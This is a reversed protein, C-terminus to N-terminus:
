YMEKEISNPKIRLFDCLKNENISGQFYNIKVIEKFLKSQIPKIAFGGQIGLEKLKQREERNKAKEKLKNNLANESIEHLIEQYPGGKIKNLIRLRTYLSSISILSNKSIEYIKDRHYNNEKTANDLVDILKYKDEILFFYVFDNCWQEHHNLSHNTEETVADIEEINLLHHAFEHLLTFIERKPYDQKKIVIINPDMFFGDFQVFEKQNWNEIFEFVFVNFDEIIAMINRLHEREKSPKTLVKNKILRTEIIKFQQGMDQAVTQPNENISYKKVKRKAQFNINSCLNQIEFKREEFRHTVKISQLSLNSNFKKKRFFISSSKREPITRKTIYWSLGNNFIKDIAKITNIPVQTTEKIAKEITEETFLLHKRSKNILELFQQITLQYLDLIYKLRTNNLPVLPNKSIEGM